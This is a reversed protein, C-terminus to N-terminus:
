FLSKLKIKKFKFFNFNSPLIFFLVLTIILYLFYVIIESITPSERYGLIGELLTGYFTNSSFFSNKSLDFVIEQLFNWLGAEHLSRIASSAIGAAIFLIFISSWKFFKFLKIYKGFYYFLLGIIISLGIGLFAGLLANIIKNQNLITLLFFVSELGERLVALFVILILSWKTNKNCVKNIDYELKKKIKISINRMWFVMYTMIIVAIIAIIFELFEQQKQPFEGITENILIGLLICLFIAFFVGEWMAIFLKERKTKKLYSAILSIILTIELGERLMILFPVFM